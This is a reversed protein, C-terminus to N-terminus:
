HCLDMFSGLKTPTILARCTLLIQTSLEICGVLWCLNTQLGEESERAPSCPAVKPRYQTTDLLSIDHKFLTPTVRPLFPSQKCFLPERQVAYIFIPSPALDFDGKLPGPAWCDTNKIISAKVVLTYSLLLFAKKSCIM